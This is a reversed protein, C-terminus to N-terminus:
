PSLENQGQRTALLHQVSQSGSSYLSQTFLTPLSGALGCCIDVRSASLNCPGRPCAYRGGGGFPLVEVTPGLLPGSSRGAAAPVRSSDVAGAAVVQVALLDM